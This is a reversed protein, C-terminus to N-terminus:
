KYVVGVLILYSLVIELIGLVVTVCGLVVGTSALARNSARGAKVRSSAAIGLGLALVGVLISGLAISRWIAPLLKSWLIFPVPLMAVAIIGAILSAMGLGNNAVAPPPYGQQPYGPPPYGPPPYNGPGPPQQAPPKPAPTFQQHPDSM